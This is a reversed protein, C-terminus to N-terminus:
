VKLDDRACLFFFSYASMVFSGDPTKDQSVAHNAGAVSVGLVDASSTEHRRQLERQDLPDRPCLMTPVQSQHMKM